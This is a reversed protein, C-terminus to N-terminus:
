GDEGPLRGIVTRGDRVQTWDYISGDYLKVDRGMLESAAFWTVSAWHGTNCFAYAEGEEPVGAASFRARLDEASAFGVGGEGLVSMAPVNTATEITGPNKAAGSQETGRFQAEPRADILPVGDRIALEVQAGDVIMDPRLDATFDGPQPAIAETSVPLGAATWADFGGDLITVADHGLAKFTWYVRTAAGIDIAQPSTGGTYIVVTDGADVGLRRALAQVAEPDPLMGEIREREARWGATTYDAHVAGPIHGKAFNLRDPLGKVEPDVELRSRIDLIALDDRELMALLDEPTTLPELAAAPAALLAAALAAATPRIM